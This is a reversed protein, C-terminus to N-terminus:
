RAINQKKFSLILAECLVGIPCRGDADEMNNLCCGTCMGDHEDCFCFENLADYLKQRADNDAM